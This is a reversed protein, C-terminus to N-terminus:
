QIDRLIESGIHSEIFQGVDYQKFEDSWFICEFCDRPSYGMALYNMDFFTYKGDWVTTHTKSEVICWDVDPLATKATYLLTNAIWNSAHSCVYEDFATTRTQRDSRWDNLDWDRPKCNDSYTWDVRELGRSDRITNTYERVIYLYVKFEFSMLAQVKESEFVPKIKKEWHHNIPYYRFKEPKLTSTDIIHNNLAKSKLLTASSWNIQTEVQKQVELSSNNISM